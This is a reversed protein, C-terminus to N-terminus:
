TDKLANARLHLHNTVFYDNLQYYNISRLVVYNQKQHQFYKTGLLVVLHDSYEWDVNFM